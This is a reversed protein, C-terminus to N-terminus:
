ETIIEIPINISFKSNMDKKYKIAFDKSGCLYIKNIQYQSCFGNVIDVVNDLTPFAKDIPNKGNFITVTQERTFPHLGVVITKENEM